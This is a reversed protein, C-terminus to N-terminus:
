FGNTFLGHAVIQNVFTWNALDTSSYLFHGQYTYDNAV